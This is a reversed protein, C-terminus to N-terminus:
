KRLENIEAVRKDIREQIVNKGNVIQAVYGHFKVLDDECDAKKKRLTPL